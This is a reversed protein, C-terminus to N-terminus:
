YSISILFIYGQYGIKFIYVYVLYNLWLTLSQSIISLKLFLFTMFIKYNLSYEYVRNYELYYSTLLFYVNNLNISFYKKIYYLNM